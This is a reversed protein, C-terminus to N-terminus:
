KVLLSEASKSPIIAKGSRGGRMLAEYSGLDFRGEKVPGAHCFQCKKYFIPEIDKEYVLHDKRDIKVVKIPEVKKAKPDDAAAGLAPLLAILCLPLFTRM